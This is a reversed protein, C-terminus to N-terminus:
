SLVPELGVYSFRQCSTELASPLKVDIGAGRRCTNKEYELNIGPLYGARADIEVLHLKEPSPQRHWSIATVDPSPVILRGAPAVSLPVTV